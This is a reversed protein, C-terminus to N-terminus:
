RHYGYARKQRGCMMVSPLSISMVNASAPTNMLPASIRTGLAAIGRRLENIEKTAKPLSEVPERVSQAASHSLEYNEWLKDLIQKEEMDSALKRQELRAVSREMNLLERNRDQADRDNKSRRGELELRAENLKLIEGRIGDAKANIDALQKEKNQLENKLSEAKTEEASIVARRSEGDGTLADLLARLQNAAGETARKESEHAAIDNNLINLEDTATTLQYGVKALERRAEDLEKTCKEMEASLVERQERLRALENARSLM